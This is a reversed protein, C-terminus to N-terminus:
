RDYVNTVWVRVRRVARVVGIDVPYTLREFTTCERGVRMHSMTEGEPVADPKVGHDERLHREVEAWPLRKGRGSPECTLCKGLMEPKRSM